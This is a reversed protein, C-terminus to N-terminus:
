LLGARALAGTLEAPGPQVLIEGAIQVTPHLTEGGNWWAVQRAARPERELDHYTYTVAARDLFRRLAQANACWRTGYVVVAASPPHAAADNSQTQM